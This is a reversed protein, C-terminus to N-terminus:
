RTIIDRNLRVWKTLVRFPQFRKKQLPCRDSILAKVASHLNIGEPNTPGIGRRNNNEQYRKAHRDNDRGLEDRIWLRIDHGFVRWVGGETFRRASTLAPRKILVLRKGPHSMRLRRCFAADEMLRKDPFGGATRFSEARVWIAQDGYYNPRLRYRIRNILEVARLGVGRGDLKFEFAGGIVDSQQLHHEIHERWDHPLLTDAHLFLLTHGRARHAGLNLASARSNPPPTGAPPTVLTAGAATARAITDDISACDCVLLELDPSHALQGLTAAISEAENLTPIIVSIM